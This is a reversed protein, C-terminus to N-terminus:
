LFEILGIPSPPPCLFRSLLRYVIWLIEGTNRNRSGYTLQAFTDDFEDVLEIFSENPVTMELWGGDSGKWKKGVTLFNTFYKVFLKTKRASSQITGVIIVM